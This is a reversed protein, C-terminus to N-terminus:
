RATGLPGCASWAPRTSPAGQVRSLRDEMKLRGTQHSVCAMEFEDGTEVGVMDYTVWTIDASIVFNLNNWRDAIDFVRTHRKMSSKQREGIAEWGEDV